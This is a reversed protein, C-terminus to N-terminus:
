LSFRDELELSSFTKQFLFQVFCLLWSVFFSKSDVDLPCERSSGGTRQETVENPVEDSIHQATNLAYELGNMFEAQQEDTLGGSEHRALITRTMLELANSASIPTGSHVPRDDSTHRFLGDKDMTTTVEGTPKLSPVRTVLYSSVRSEHTNLVAQRNPTNPNGRFGPDRNTGGGDFNDKNDM